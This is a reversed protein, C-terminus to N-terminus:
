GRRDRRRRCRPCRSRRMERLAALARSRTVGAVEPHSGCARFFRFVKLIHHGHEMDGAYEDVDVRITDRYLAFVDEAPEVLSPPAILRNSVT